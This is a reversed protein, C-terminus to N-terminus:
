SIRDDVFTEIYRFVYESALIGKQEYYNLNKEFFKERDERMFDNGQMVVDDIFHEIGEFDGGDVKYLIKVLEKGFDNFTNSERTLFLMPKHAYLYEALFSVSDLIMADSTEFIDIYTGSEIVQANPLQNWMELYDDYEQESKFMGQAVVGARLMPHPRLVWSTTMENDRAYNYIQMYIKDFNGFGTQGDRISWHPAYIIKKVSKEDSNPSMKWIKRAQKNDKCFFGDMRIYGSAVVNFDGIDSYKAAMRKHCETECFIKWYLAHSLQNFQGNVNGYVMMGYPIYVNLISLPFNCMNSTEIFATYYPNLHFVIDPTGIEKWNKVRKQYMDYLGVVNFKREEFYSITKNYTDFITQETGVFFPAVVVMVEYDPCKDYIKYLEDCSWEASDKVLFAIKKKKQGRIRELDTEYVYSSIKKFLEVGGKEKVVALSHYTHEDLFTDDMSQDKYRQVIEDFIRNDEKVDQLEKSIDSYRKNNYCDKEYEYEMLGAILDLMYCLEAKQGNLIMYKILEGYQSSIDDAFDANDEYSLAYYLATSIDSVPCAELAMQGKEIMMAIKKITAVMQKQEDTM